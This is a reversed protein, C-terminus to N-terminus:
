WPPALPRHQHDAEAARGGLGQVADDVRQGAALLLHLQDVVAPDVLLEADVDVHARQGAVELLRLQRQPQRAFQEQLGEDSGVM